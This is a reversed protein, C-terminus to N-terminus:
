EVAAMIGADYMVETTRLAPHVAYPTWLDILTPAIVHIPTISICWSVLSALAICHVVAKVAYQLLHSQARPIDLLFSYFFVAYYYLFYFSILMLRWCLGIIPSILICGVVFAHAHLQRQDRLNAKEKNM